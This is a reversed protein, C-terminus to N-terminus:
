GCRKMEDADEDAMDEPEVSDPDDDLWMEYAGPAIDIMWQEVEGGFLEKLKDIYKETFEEENLM